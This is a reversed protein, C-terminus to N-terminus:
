VSIFFEFVKYFCFFKIFVFFNFYFINLFQTISNLFKTFNELNSDSILFLQVNM